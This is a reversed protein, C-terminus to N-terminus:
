SLIITLYDNEPFIVPPSMIYHRRKLTQNRRWPFFISRWNPALLKHWFRRASAKSAVPFYLRLAALTQVADASM